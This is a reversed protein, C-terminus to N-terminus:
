KKITSKSCSSNKSVNASEFMSNLRASNARASQQVSQCPTMGFFKLPDFLKNRALVDQKKIRHSLNDTINESHDCCLLIKVDQLSLESTKHLDDYSRVKKLSDQSKKKLTKTLVYM